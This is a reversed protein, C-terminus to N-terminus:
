NVGFFNFPISYTSMGLTPNDRDQKIPSFNSGQFQTVGTGTKFSKGQFFTELIDAIVTPRKPGSKVQTFIDIILIGGVSTLNVGQSSPIIDVRIFETGPSDPVLLSPYTAIGEALWEASAFVSFIDNQLNSYKAM